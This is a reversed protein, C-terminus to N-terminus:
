THTITTKNEGDTLEYGNMGNKSREEINKKEEIFLKVLNQIDRRM